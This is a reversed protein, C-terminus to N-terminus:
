SSVHGSKKCGVRRSFSPSFQLTTAIKALSIVNRSGMGVYGLIPSHVLTHAGTLDETVLLGGCAYDKWSCFYITLLFSSVTRLSYERTRVSLLCLLMPLSDKQSDHVPIRHCRSRVTPPGRPDRHLMGFGYSAYLYEGLALPQKSVSNTSIGVLCRNVTRPNM